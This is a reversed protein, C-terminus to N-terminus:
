FTKKVKVLWQWAAIDTDGDLPVAVDIHLVNHANGDRNGTRTGSFRLGFGVDRLWGTQDQPFPSDGWARGADAFVAAGLHFLSLFESEFYYRQELTFLAARDGSQYHSPYGRLGQDGGLELTQDAFMNWSRQLRASAYFQSREFNNWHYDANVAVKAGQWSITDYYGNAAGGLLLLQSDTFAFGQTYDAELVYSGNVQDKQAPSYGLRARFDFGLNIDEVRNIHQVNTAKIYGDQVHQYEVWPYAYARDHPLLTSPVATSPFFDDEAQTFGVLWRSFVHDDDSTFRRGYFTSANQSQHRYQNM